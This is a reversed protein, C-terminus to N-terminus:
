MLTEQRIPAAKPMVPRSATAPQELLLLDDVPVFVVAAVEGAVVLAPPSVDVVAAGLLYLAVAVGVVPNFAPLATVTM